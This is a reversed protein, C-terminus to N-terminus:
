YFSVTSINKWFDHLFHRLSVLELGRKTKKFTKYSTFALPWCRLRLINQYDEFRICLFLFSYSIEFNQNQSIKFKSEKSFYRSYTQGGCKKYSKELFLNRMNFEILQDIKITEKGKRESINSSINITIILKCNSLTTFKSILRLKKIM